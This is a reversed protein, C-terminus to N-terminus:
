STGGVLLFSIPVTPTKWFPLHGLGIPKSNFVSIVKIELVFVWITFTGGHAYSWNNHSPEWGNDSASWAGLIGWADFHGLQGSLVWRFFVTSHQLKATDPWFRDHFWSPRFSCTESSWTKRQFTPFMFVYIVLHATTKKNSCRETHGEWYGPRLVALSRWRKAHRSTHWLLSGNQLPWHHKVMGWRVLKISYRQSYSSWCHRATTVIWRLTITRTIQAIDHYNHPHDWHLPAWPSTTHHETHPDAAMGCPDVPDTGLSQQGATEWGHLLGLDDLQLCQINRVYPGQTHIRPLLFCNHVM